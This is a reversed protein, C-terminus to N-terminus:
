STETISAIVLCMIEIFSNLVNKERESFTNQLSITDITIMKIFTKKYFQFKLNKRDM